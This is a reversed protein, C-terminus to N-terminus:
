INLQELSVPMEGLSRAALGTTAADPWLNFLQRLSPPGNQWVRDLAPELLCRCTVALRYADGITLFDLILEVLESIYFLPHM